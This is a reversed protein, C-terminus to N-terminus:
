PAEPPTIEIERLGATDAGLHPAAAKLMEPLLRRFDGRTDRTGVLTKWLQPAAADDEVPKTLDYAELVLGMGYTVRTDTRQTNGTFGYTPAVYAQTTTRGTAPDTRHSRAVNYGTVGYEPTDYRRTETTGEGVFWRFRILTAADRREAVRVWGAAALTKEVQAANARYQLDSEPMRPDGSVLLYKGPHTAAAAAYGDVTVTLRQACGAFALAALLPFLIRFRLRSSTM